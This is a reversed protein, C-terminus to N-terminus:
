VSHGVARDPYCAILKFNNRYNGDGWGQSWVDANAGGKKEVEIALLEPADDAGGASILGGM